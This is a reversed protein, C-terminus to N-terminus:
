VHFFNRCCPDSNGCFTPSCTPPPCTPLFRPTMYVLSSIHTMQWAIKWDQTISYWLTLFVTTLPARPHLDTVVSRIALAERTVWPVSPMNDLVSHPATMTAEPFAELLTAEHFVLASLKLDSNTLTGEPNRDSIIAKIINPLWSHRWVLSTGSGSPNLWVGGARVISTDCLLLHTPELRIIEALHILQTDTQAM